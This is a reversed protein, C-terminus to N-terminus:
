QYIFFILGPSLTEKQEFRKHVQKARAMIGIEQEAALLDRYDHKFLHQKTENVGSQFVQIM